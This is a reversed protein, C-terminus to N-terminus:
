QSHIIENMLRILDTFSCMLPRSLSRSITRRLMVNATRSTLVSARSAKREAVESIFIIPLTTEPMKKVDINVTAGAVIARASIPCVIDGNVTARKPARPAIIPSRMMSKKILSIKASSILPTNLLDFHFFNRESKWIPSQLHIIGSIPAAIIAEGSGSSSPKVKIPIEFILFVTM